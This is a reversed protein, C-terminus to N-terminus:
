TGSAPHSSGLCTVDPTERISVRCPYHDVPHAAGEEIQYVPEGRYTKLGQTRHLRDWEDYAPRFDYQRVICILIVRLETMVLGQAFCNRPGIEFAQFAGKLPYLEHGPEVLWREPLFDDPRAWYAPARHMETHIMFIAANETPCRNGYDDALDVNPKGERSCDGPSFLRLTEKIVATTYPLDNTLQPQKKLMAPVASLEPGLLKNHEARLRDLAGPHTSLLHVIYCITSSTSDHGVFLFLRIQSIAFARFAPDLRELATTSNESLYAQLVLDIVAKTRKSDPDAKYEDYRKDLENGIYKNMKRGNWWHVAWRVFNLHELPNMEANAQHWQIQNLMSDALTNHGRQAGLSANRSLILKTEAEHPYDLVWLITKGIVDMTFRLTTPDLYFLDGELALNRLTDCYKATEDVLGPVLSLNHEASFGRVFVARWPKWDKELLDFLSPGSCIPRLFRPLLSPREMSVSPNAHVQTAVNLSVVILFLGSVPWLDTYFVGQHAFHQRAIDGFASQYHANRPLKKIMSNLYLLHGFLLSHNPAVPQWDDAATNEDGPPPFGSVLGKKRKEIILMRAKYLGSFFYAGSTALVVLLAVIQNSGLVNM